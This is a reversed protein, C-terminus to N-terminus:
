APWRVNADAHDGAHGARLACEKLTTPDTDHCLRTGRQPVSDTETTFSIVIADDTVHFRLADGPLTVLEDVGHVQRYRRAAVTIASELDALAAGWPEGAPVEWEYRTSTITRSSWTTM